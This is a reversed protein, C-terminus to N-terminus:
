FAMERHRAAGIRVTYGRHHQLTDPYIRKEAKALVYEDYYSLVIFNNLRVVGLYIQGLGDKVFV